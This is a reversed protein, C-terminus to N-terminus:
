EPSGYTYADAGRVKMGPPIQSYVHTYLSSLNVEAETKAKTAAM